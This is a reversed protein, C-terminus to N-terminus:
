KTKEYISTGVLANISAPVNSLVAKSPGAELYALGAASLALLISVVRLLNVWFSARRRSAPAAVREETKRAPYTDSELFNDDRTPYLPAEMRRVIPVVQERENELEPEPASGAEELTPTLVPTPKVEAEAVVPVQTAPTGSETAAGVPPTAPEVPGNSFWAEWAENLNDLPESAVPVAPTTPPSAIPEPDVSGPLEEKKILNIHPPEDYLPAYRPPEWTHDITKATSSATQSSVVSEVKANEVKPFSVSPPGAESTGFRHERIDAELVYWSRGVQRAKVRGERCLQGVYDKAYGTVKAARRTSLYKKDDILLEDM